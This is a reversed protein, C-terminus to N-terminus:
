KHYPLNNNIAAARYIQELLMLRALQHPLTMASLSLMRCARAKVEGSLGLPGGIIFTCGGSRAAEDALLRAFSNSSMMEGESALATVPLERVKLAKIIRLGEAKIVKEMDAPRSGQPKQDSIETVAVNYYPRVRDLYERVGDRVFPQTLKGVAIIEIRFM